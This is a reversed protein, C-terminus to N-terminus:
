PPRRRMGMMPDPGYTLGRSPRGRRPNAVPSSGRFRERYDTAEEQHSEASGEEPPDAEEVSMQLLVWELRGQDEKDSLTLHLLDMMIEEQLVLEEEQCLSNCNYVGVM